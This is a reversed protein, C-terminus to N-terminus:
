FKGGSLTFAMPRIVPDVRRGEAAPSGPREAVSKTSVSSWRLADAMSYRQHAQTHLRDRVDLSRNLLIEGRSVLEELAGHDALHLDARLRTGLIAPTLWWSAM